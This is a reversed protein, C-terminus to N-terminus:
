FTHNLSVAYYSDNFGRNRRHLDANSVHYLNAEGMLYLSNGLRYRLGVGLKEQFQLHGSIDPVDLSTRIIGAGTQIFPRLNGIKMFHYRYIAMVGYTNDQMPSTTRQYDASISWEQKNSQFIGYEVAVHTSRLNTRSHSLNHSRGLSFGIEHKGDLDSSPKPAKVSADPAATVVAAATTTDISNSNPAEDALAAGPLALSLLIVYKRM